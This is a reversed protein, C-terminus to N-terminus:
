NNANNQKCIDSFKKGIDGIGPYYVGNKWYGNHEPICVESAAIIDFNM